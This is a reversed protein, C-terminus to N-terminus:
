RFPHLGEVRSVSLRVRAARLPEDSLLGAPCHSLKEHEEGCCSGRKREVEGGRREVEGRREVREITEKTEERDRRQRRGRARM